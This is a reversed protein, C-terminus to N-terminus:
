IEFRQHPRQAGSPSGEQTLDRRSVEIYDPLKGSSGRPFYIVVALFAVVAVVWVLYRFYKRM